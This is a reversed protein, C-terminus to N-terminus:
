SNGTLRLREHEEGHCNSCLMICKDLEVKVKEWSRTYGGASISFDKETPDTHHFVLSSLCKAYGCFKCSGGMYEVAMVKLKDRRKQVAASSCKGCKSGGKDKRPYHTTAGHKPCVLQTM